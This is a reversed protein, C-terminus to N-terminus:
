PSQRSPDAAPTSVQDAPKRDANARQTAGRVTVPLLLTDGVASFPMDVCYLFAETCAGVWEAPSAAKGADALDDRIAKADSQVGGYAPGVQPQQNACPPFTSTFTGCGASSTVLVLFAALRRAM